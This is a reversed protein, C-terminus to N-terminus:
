QLAHRAQLRHSQKSFFRVGAHLVGVHEGALSAEPCGAQEKECETEHEQLIELANEKTKKIYHRDANQDILGRASPNRHRARRTTANCRGVPSRDRPTMGWSNPNDGSRRFGPDEGFRRCDCHQQLTESRPPYNRLLPSM